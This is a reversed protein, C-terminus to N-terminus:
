QETAIAKIIEGAPLTGDIFIAGHKRAEEEFYKAYELMIERQEATKGMPNERSDHQVRQELIEWPVHLFVVKDFLDGMAFVNGSAGLLYIDQQQGLFNELFKRNWLFEHNALFEKGANEPFDGVKNGQGDYWSHLGQVQDADIANLGAQQMAQALFTKGAGSPGTILVRM